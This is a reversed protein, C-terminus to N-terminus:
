SMMAQSTKDLHQRQLHRQWDTTCNNGKLLQQHIRELATYPTEVWAGAGAVMVETATSGPLHLQQQHLLM